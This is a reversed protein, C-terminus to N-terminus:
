HPGKREPSPGKTAKPALFIGGAMDVTMMYVQHPTDIGQAQLQEYLWAEDRGLLALNDSLLRGDNIVMIPYGRDQTKLGLQGATAPRQDATPIVNLRGDTELIAYEVEHLDLIGQNRLAETLEDPTFRNRRMQTQDIRGHVVLLAPKGELVARLKVSHLCLLSLIYELGLLTVVPVIGYLLPMDPDTIPDSAAETILITVILESLELDGLQRKGILRLLLMLLAYIIITNLLVRLM